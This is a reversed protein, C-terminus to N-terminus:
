DAKRWLIIERDDSISCFAEDGVQVLRNVVHKHGQDKREKRSIISFNDLNWIKITKDFSATVFVGLSPFPLIDYVAFNHAPIEILKKGERWNWKALYANKGGTILEEGMFVACNVGSSHAKFRVIENFFSTELIRIFGDQGCLAIHTGDENVAICRVKGCNFPLTIKLSFTVSDWVCLFGDADASYFEKTAKNTALSFIAAKHQLINKIEKRIHLDIVHLNGKSSGIVLFQNEKEQNILHIRYASSELRVTFGDQQGTELNWRVVFKDASTTFVHGNDDSIIDYIAGSHGTLKKKCVFDM